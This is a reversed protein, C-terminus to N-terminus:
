DHIVKTFAAAITIFKVTASVLAIIVITISSAIVIAVKTTAIINVTVLFYTDVVLTKEKFYFRKGLSKFCQYANV